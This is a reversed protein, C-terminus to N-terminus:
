DMKNFFHRKKLKNLAKNTRSLALTSCKRLYFWALQSLGTLVSGRDWLKNIDSLNWAKELLDLHDNNAM